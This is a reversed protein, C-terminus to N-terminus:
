RCSVSSTRFSATPKSQPLSYMPVLAPFDLGYEILELRVQPLAPAHQAALCRFEHALLKEAPHQRVVRHSPQQVLPGRAVSYGVGLQGEFSVDFQEPTCLGLGPGKGGSRGLCRRRHNPSSSWALARVRAVLVRLRREGRITLRRFM